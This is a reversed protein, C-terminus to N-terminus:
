RRKNAAIEGIAFNPYHRRSKLLTGCGHGQRALADNEDDRTSYGGILAQIEHATQALPTSRDPRDHRAPCLFEDGRESDAGQRRAMDIGLEKGALVFLVDAM